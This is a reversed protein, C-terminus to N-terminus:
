KLKKIKINDKNMNAIKLLIFHIREISYGGNFYFNISTFNPLNLHLM